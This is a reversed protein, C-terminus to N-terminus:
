ARKEYIARSARLSSYIHTFYDEESLENGKLDKAIQGSNYRWQSLQNAYDEINRIYSDPLVYMQMDFPDFYQFTDVNYGLETLLKKYTRTLRAIMRELKFGKYNDFFDRAHEMDFYYISGLMVVGPIRNGKILQHIRIRTINYEEEIRSVPYLNEYKSELHMNLNAIDDSSMHYDFKNAM